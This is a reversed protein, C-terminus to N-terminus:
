FYHQEEQTMNKMATSKSHEWLLYRKMIEGLDHQATGDNASNRGIGIAANPSM